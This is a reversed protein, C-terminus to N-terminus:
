RCLQLDNKIVPATFHEPGWWKKILGPETWAEWVRERPADFVRSVVIDEGPTTSAVSNEQITKAM